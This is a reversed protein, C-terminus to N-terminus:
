LDTFHAHRFGRYALFRQQRAREERTAPMADGFKKQRALLAAEAWSEHSQNLYRGALAEGIGRERLEAAIRVPGFGLGKRYNVYSETFREDSLLGDDILRNLASEIVDYESYRRHLKRALELRSHERRALLNMASRRIDTAKTASDTASDAAPDTISDTMADNMVNAGGGIVATGSARAIDAATIESQSANAECDAQGVLVHDDVTLM